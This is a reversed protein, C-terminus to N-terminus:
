LSYKSAQRLGLVVQDIAASNVFKSAGSLATWVARVLQDHIQVFRQVFHLGLQGFFTQLACRNIMDLVGVPRDDRGKHRAKVASRGELEVMRAQACGGRTGPTPQNDLVIKSGRVRVDNHDVDFPQSNLECVGINM